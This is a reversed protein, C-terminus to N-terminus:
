LDQDIFTQEDLAQVSIDAGRKLHATEDKMTFDGASSSTDIDALIARGEAITREGEEYVEDISATDLVNLGILVICM